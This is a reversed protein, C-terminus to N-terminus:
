AGVSGIQAVRPAQPAEIYRRFTSMRANRRLFRGPERGPRGTGPPSM